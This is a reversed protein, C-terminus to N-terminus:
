VRLQCLSYRGTSGSFTVYTPRNISAPLFSNAFREVLKDNEVKEVHGGYGSAM